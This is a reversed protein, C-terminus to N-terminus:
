NNISFDHKIQKEIDRYDMGAPNFAPAASAGKSKGGAVTGAARAAKQSETAKKMGGIEADKTHQDWMLDRYAVELKVGGMEYAHKIIEKMLTDGGNSSPTEWDDRQYKQQLSQIESQIEQDAKAELQQQQYQTFEEKWGKLEQIEKLLEPPISSQQPTANAQSQPAVGPTLSNQYWQMIQERFQPNKEFAQELQKYQEYQQSQSNLQAERQKLENMRQSYSYGQQALSVLHNRDKPVITQDRFKLQWEKPNWSPDGGVTQQGEQQQSNEQGEVPVNDEHSETPQESSGLDAVAQNSAEEYSM